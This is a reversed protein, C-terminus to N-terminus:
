WGQRSGTSPCGAGASTLTDGVGARNNLDRRAIDEEPRPGDCPQGVEGGPDIDAFLEAITEQAKGHRKGPEPLHLRVHFPREELAVGPLLKKRRLPRVAGDSGSPDSSEPPFLSGM